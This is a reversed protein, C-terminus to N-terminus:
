CVAAWLVLSMQYKLLNCIEIDEGKKARVFAGDYYALAVSLSIILLGVILPFIM